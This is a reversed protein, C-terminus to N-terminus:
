IIKEYYYDLKFEKFIDSYSYNDKKINEILFREIQATKSGFSNLLNHNHLLSDFNENIKDHLEQLSLKNLKQIEYVIYEMRKDNDEINDYEENILWDFTKFGIEKLYKLLHPRGM